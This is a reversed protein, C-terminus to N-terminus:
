WTIHSSYSFPIAIVPLGYNGLTNHVFPPLLQRTDGVLAKRREAEVLEHGHTTAGEWQRNEWTLSLLFCCIVTWDFSLFSSEIPLTTVTNIMHVGTLQILNNLGSFIFIKVQPNGRRFIWFSKYIRRGVIELALQMCWGLFLYVGRFFLTITFIYKMWFFFICCVSKSLYINRGYFTFFLLKSFSIKNKRWRMAIRAWNGDLEM